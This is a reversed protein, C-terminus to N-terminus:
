CLHKTMKPLINNCGKRWPHPSRNTAFSTPLLLPLAEILYIKGPCTKLSPQVQHLLMLTFFKTWALFLPLTPNREEQASRGPSRSVRPLDVRLSIMCLFLPCWLYRFVDNPSIGPRIEAITCLVTVQRKHVCTHRDGMRKHHVRDAPLM